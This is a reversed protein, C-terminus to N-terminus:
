YWTTYTWMAADLLRLRSSDIALLGGPGPRASSRRCRM